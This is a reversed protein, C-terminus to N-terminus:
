RQVAPFDRELTREVVELNWGEAFREQFGPLAEGRAVDLAQTGVGGLIYDPQPLGTTGVLNLVDDVLRGSNYCLMPRRSQPIGDWATRFRGVSEPSGVLTGDLDSSFLRMETM